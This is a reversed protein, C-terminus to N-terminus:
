TRKELLEKLKKMDKEMQGRMQMMLLPEALKFFGGPEAEITDTVRTGGAVAECTTSGSMPFPGSTGKWAYKRPRDYVAVEGTTELKRGMVEINFRYTAGVGMAGPSTQAAELVGSMWQTANGIDTVFAFVEEIPRNITVNTETRAM